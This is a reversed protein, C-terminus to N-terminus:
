EQASCEFPLPWGEQLALATELLVRDHAAVVTIGKAQSKSCITAAIADRLQTSDPLGLVEVIHAALYTVDDPSLQETKGNGVAVPLDQPQKAAPGKPMEAALVAHGHPKEGNAARYTVALQGNAPQVEFRELLEQPPEPGCEYHRKRSPPPLVGPKRLEPFCAWWKGDPEQWRGLLGVREFENHMQKIMEVTIEPRNFSYATAWVLTPDCEFVGNGLSLPLQWAYDGRIEPPQVQALKSSTWLTIEGDIIRKPM